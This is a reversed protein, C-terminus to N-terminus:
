AQEDKIRRMAEEVSIGTHMEYLIKLVDISKRIEILQFNLAYIEKDMIKVKKPVIHAIIGVM